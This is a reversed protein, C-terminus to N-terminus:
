FVEAFPRGPTRRTRGAILEGSSGVVPELAPLPLILATEAPTM